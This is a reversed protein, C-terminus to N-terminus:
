LTQTKKKKKIKKNGVYSFIKYVSHKPQIESKIYEFRSINGQM